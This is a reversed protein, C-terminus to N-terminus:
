IGLSMGASYFGQVYPISSVTQAMRTGFTSTLVATITDRTSTADPALYVGCFSAKRGKSGVADQLSLGTLHDKLAARRAVSEGDIGEEWAVATVKLEVGLNQRLMAPQTQQKTAHYSTQTQSVELHM